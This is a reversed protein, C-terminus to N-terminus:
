QAQRSGSDDPKGDAAIMPSAAAAIMPSAAIMMAQLIKRRMPKRPRAINIPIMSVTSSRHISIGSVFSGVTLFLLLGLVM